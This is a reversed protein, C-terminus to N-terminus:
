LSSNICAVAWHFIREGETVDPINQLLAEFASTYAAVAQGPHQRHKGESLKARAETARSRLQPAFRQEVAGCWQDITYAGMSEAWDLYWVQAAGKLTSGLFLRVADINAGWPALGLFTRVDRLFARIKAADVAVNERVDLEPAPLRVQVPPAGSPVHTPQVQGAQQQLAQAILAPGGPMGALIAALHRAVPDLGAALGPPGLGVGPAVTMTPTDGGLSTSPGAGLVTPVTRTPVTVPMPEVASVAVPAVPAMNGTAAVAPLTAVPNTVVPTAVTSSVPGVPVAADASSRTAAPLQVGVLAHFLNVLVPDPPGSEPVAPLLLPVVNPLVPNTGTQPPRGAPPASPGSGSADAMSIDDDEM